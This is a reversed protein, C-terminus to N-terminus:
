LQKGVPLTDNAMKSSRVTVGAMKKMHDASDLLQFTFFTIEVSRDTARSRRATVASSYPMMAPTSPSASIEINVRRPLVSLVSNVFMPLLM